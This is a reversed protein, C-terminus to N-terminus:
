TLKEDEVLPVPKKQSEVQVSIKNILAYVQEFPFKALGSIVADAEEQTLRVSYEEQM